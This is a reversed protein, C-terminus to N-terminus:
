LNSLQLALRMSSLQLEEEMQLQQLHDVTTPEQWEISNLKFRANSDGFMTLGVDIATDFTDLIIPNKYMNSM